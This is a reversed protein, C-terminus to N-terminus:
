DESAPELRLVKELRRRHRAEGTFSAQVWAAVIAEALGEGVIDAGICLVNADNHERSRRASFPDHCLAARVGSLKNAAICSGVGTSCIMIGLDSEGAQV